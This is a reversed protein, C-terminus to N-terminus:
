CGNISNVNTIECNSQIVNNIINTGLSQTSSIVVSGNVQNIQIKCLMSNTSTIHLDVLQVNVVSLQVNLVYGVIGASNQTSSINSKNLSSSWINLSTFQSQFGVFGGSDTESELGNSNAYSNYVFTNNIEAQNKYYWNCLKGIILGSYAVHHPSTSISNLQTVNANIIQILISGYVEGVIGGIHSNLSANGSVISNTIIVGNFQVFQTLKSSPQVYYIDVIQAIIGSYVNYVDYNAQNISSDLVINFLKGMNRSIAIVFGTYQVSKLTTSIVQIDEILWNVSNQVAVLTSVQTGINNSLM